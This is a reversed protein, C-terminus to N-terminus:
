DQPRSVNLPDLGIGSLWEGVLRAYQRTTLHQDPGRRGLKPRVKSRQDLPLRRTGAPDSEGSEPSISIAIMPDDPRLNKERIALSRKHHQEADAFRRQKYYVIALANLQDAVALDPGCARETANLLREALPIASKYDGAKYLRLFENTSNLFIV